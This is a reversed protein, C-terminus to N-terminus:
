GLAIRCMEEVSVPRYTGGDLIYVVDADLYVTAGKGDVTQSARFLAYGREHSKGTPLFILNAAAAVEEVITRFSM